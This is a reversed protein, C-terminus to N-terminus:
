WKLCDHCLPLMRITESSVNVNQLIVLFETLVVDVGVVVKHFYYIVLNCLLKMEWECNLVPNLELTQDMSPHWEEGVVIWIM